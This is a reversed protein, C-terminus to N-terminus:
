SELSGGKLSMGNKVQTPQTREAQDQDRLKNLPTDYDYCVSGLVTTRWSQIATGYM